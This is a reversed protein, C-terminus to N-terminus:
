RHDHAVHVHAGSERTCAALSVRPWVFVCRCIEVACMSICRIYIYVYTLKNDPQRTKRSAFLVEKRVVVVVLPARAVIADRRACGGRM